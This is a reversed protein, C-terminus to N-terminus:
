IVFIYKGDDKWASVLRRAMIIKIQPVLDKEELFALDGEEQVGTNELTEILKAKDAETIGPIVRLISTELFNM